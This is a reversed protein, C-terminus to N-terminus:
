TKAIADVPRYRSARWAPMLSTLIGLVVVVADALLLDIALRDRVFEYAEERWAFASADQARALSLLDLYCAFPRFREPDEVVVQVGRCGAGAHEGARDWLPAFFFGQRLRLGGGFSRM